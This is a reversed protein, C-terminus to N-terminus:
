DLKINAFLSKLSTTAEEKSGPLEFVEEEEIEKAMVDSAEKMSLSIKGDKVATIKVKVKDGAALVDSPKKIRKESIQSVHVLGSLVFDM